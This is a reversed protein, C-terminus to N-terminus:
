DNLAEVMREVVGNLGLLGIDLWKIEKNRRFWTMQRKAYNRTLQKIQSIADELSCEGHLFAAIQKYGLAQMSNASRSIGLEILERVEDVFGLEIMGDVRKEIKTYLEQRDLYMGFCFTDPFRYTKQIAASSKRKGTALYYEIARVVRKVNEKDTNQAYELDIEALWEFLRESDGDSRLRSLEENEPVSYDDQGFVYSSYVVSDHYFGSGGAIIPVSGHSAVNEICSIAMKQYLAVDMDEAPDLVDIMWHQVGKMEDATVKATGIDMKRYVQYADASIIHACGLKLALEIAASSKGTATPGIISILM